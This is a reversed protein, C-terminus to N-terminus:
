HTSVPLSQSLFCILPRWPSPGTPFLRPQQRCLPNGGPLHFRRPVPHRPSQVIDHGSFAVKFHNITLIENHHIVCAKKM